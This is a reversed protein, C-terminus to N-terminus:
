KLGMECYVMVNTGIINWGGKELGKYKNWIEYVDDRTKSQMNDPFSDVYSHCCNQLSYKFDGSANEKEFHKLLDFGYKDVTIAPEKQCKVLIEAYLWNKVTVIHEKNSNTWTDFVCIINDSKPVFRYEPM